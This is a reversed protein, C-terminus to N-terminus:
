SWNDHICIDLADAIEERTITPLDHPSIVGAHLKKHCNSCLTTVKLLERVLKDTAIGANKAINFSKTSPDVHHFDICDPCDEYCIKCSVRLKRLRDRKQQAWQRKYARRDTM